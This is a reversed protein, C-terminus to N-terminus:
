VHGGSSVRRAGRNNAIRRAGALAIDVGIGVLLMAGVVLAVGVVVWGAHHLFDERSAAGNVIPLVLAIALYVGIPVVLRCLRRRM